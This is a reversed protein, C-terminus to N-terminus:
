ENVRIVFFHYDNAMTMGAQGSDNKLFSEPRAGNAPIINIKEEASGFKMVEASNEAHM